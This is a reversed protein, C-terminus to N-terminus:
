NFLLRKVASQGPSGSCEQTCVESIDYIKFSSETGLIQEFRIKGSTTIPYLINAVKMWM